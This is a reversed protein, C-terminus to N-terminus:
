EEVTTRVYDLVQCGVKSMKTDTELISIGAAEYDYELAILFGVEQGLPTTMGTGNGSVQWEEPVQVVVEVQVRIEKTAM